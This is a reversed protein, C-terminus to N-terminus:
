KLKIKESILKIFEEKSVGTRLGKEDCIDFGIGYQNFYFFIPNGESIKKKSTDAFAIYFSDPRSGYDTFVLNNKVKKFEKIIDKPEGSTEIYEFGNDELYNFIDQWPAGIPFNEAFISILNVKNINLKEYIDIINKM